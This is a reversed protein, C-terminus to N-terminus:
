YYEGVLVDNFFLGLHFHFTLQETQDSEKGNCLSYGALSRDM